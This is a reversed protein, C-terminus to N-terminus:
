PEHRSRALIAKLAGEHTQNPRSRLWKRCWHRCAACLPRMPLPTNLRYREPQKECARCREGERPNEHSWRGALFLAKVAPDLTARPPGQLPRLSPGCLVARPETM